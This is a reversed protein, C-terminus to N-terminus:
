EPVHPELPDSVILVEPYWDAGPNVGEPPEQGRIISIVPQAQALEGWETWAMTFSYGPLEFENAHLYESVAAPDDGVEAVAEAVMTVIGYGAVADDDMFGLDSSEAFRTALEIYEEDEFNACDYDTYRDHAAEGIGEMVSVLPGDPGTVPVDFGQDTAQLTISGSGPPHGTAIIIEPDLGELSRLYTSFDTEGVPAVELQLEVDDLEAFQAELAERISQGWAYDAIIAGVRTMGEQQVYQVYPQVVMPAAALCTRFTHRSDQTLISAAGSKVLFLPVELEEAVRATALGVDSSIVGGAAVVGDQEIMREFATVGEEPNNQDDAEVLEIPRGDVGGQANIEEAAMQMGDFAQLGWPTFPGTFSTLVGIRIPEGDGDDDDTADDTGTDGGDPSPDEATTDGSCATLALALAAGLALLRHHRRVNM